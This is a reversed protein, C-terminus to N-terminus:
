PYIFDYINISILGIFYYYYYYYFFYLLLSGHYRQRYLSQSRAPRGLIRLELGPLALFQKKEMEDLGARPDV